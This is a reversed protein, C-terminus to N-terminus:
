SGASDPATTEAARNNDCDLPNEIFSKPPVKTTLGIVGATAKAFFLVDNSVLRAELM